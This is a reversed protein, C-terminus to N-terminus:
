GETRKRYQPFMEDLWKRGVGSKLFHERQLAEGKTHYSETHVLIWPRGGRTFRSQGANHQRLRDLPDKGSGIYRKLLKESWLVYVAHQQVLSEM